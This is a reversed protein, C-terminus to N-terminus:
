SGSSALRLPDIPSSHSAPAGPQDANRAVNPQKHIPFRSELRATALVLLPVISTSFPSSSHICVPQGSPPSVQCTDTDTDARAQTAVSHGHGILVAVQRRGEVVKGGM